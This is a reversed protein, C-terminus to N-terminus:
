QFNVSSVHRLCWDVLCTLNLYPWNNCLLSNRFIDKSDTTENLVHILWDPQGGTWGQGTQLGMPHDRQQVKPGLSTITGVPLSARWYNGFLFYHRTLDCVTLCWSDTSHLPSTDHLPHHRIASQLSKWVSRAVSGVNIFLNRFKHCWRPSSTWLGWCLWYVWWAQATPDRVSDQKAWKHVLWHDLSM